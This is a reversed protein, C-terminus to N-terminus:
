LQGLAVVLDPVVAVERLDGQLLDLVEELVVLIELGAFPHLHNFPTVSRFGVPQDELADLARLLFLLHAARESDDAVDQQRQDGRDDNEGGHEREVGEGVTRLLELDRADRPRLDICRGRGRPQRFRDAEAGDGAVFLGVLMGLRQAAHLRMDFLAKRRKMGCGLALDDGIVAQEVGPLTRVRLGLRDRQQRMLVDHRDRRAGVLVPLVRGIVADDGVAEDPAAAGPVVLAVEIGHQFGGFRQRLRAELGLARDIEGEAMVLFGGAGAARLVDRRQEGRAPHLEVEHDVLAEQDGVTQDLAEVLRGRQDADGLLAIRCQHQIRMAVGPCEEIGGRSVAIPM